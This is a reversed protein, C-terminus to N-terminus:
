TQTIYKKRMNSYNISQRQILLSTMTNMLVSLTMFMKMFSNTIHIAVLSFNNKKIGPYIAHPLCHGDEKIPLITKGLSALNEDMITVNEVPVAM